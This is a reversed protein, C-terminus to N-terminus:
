EDLGNRLDPRVRFELPKHNLLEPYVPILPTNEKSFHIALRRAVSLNIPNYIDIDPHEVLLHLTELIRVKEFAVAAMMRITHNEHVLAQQLINIAQQSVLGKERHQLAIEKLAGIAGTCVIDDADQFAKPLIDVAKSTGLAQLIAITTLRGDRSKNDLSAALIAIAEEEGYKEMLESAIEQPKQKPRLLLQKSLEILQSDFKKLNMEAIRRVFNDEHHYAQDLASKADQSSLLRLTLVAQMKVMKDPHDFAQILVKMAKQNDIRGLFNIAALRLNEDHHNLTQALIEIAKINTTESLAFIALKAIIHNKHNCAQTLIQLAEENGIKGLTSIALRSVYESEHDIAQSLAQIAEHNGIQGLVVGATTQLHKSEDDLILQLVKIAKPTGIDGLRWIANERTNIDQSNLESRLFELYQNLAEISEPREIKHLAQLILGQIYPSNSNNLAQILLQTAERNAIRGLVNIAGMVMQRQNDYIHKKFYELFQRHVQLISAVTAGIFKLGSYSHWFAFINTVIQKISPNDQEECEAICKGALLLLTSFIDDKENTISKLLPIPDDLLGTFVAITEHWDFDWFHVKALEIGNQQRRLYSATLYEQFTRHLFLYRDRERELKQIIGDEETLESILIESNSQKFVSSVTDSHLYAEIKDYLDDATFIEKYECSFQYALEELLRLKARIRGETQPKRNRTWNKLMYEVAHKYIQVRRAPLTLEDEQYLSCVLSLLLPNQALGRIQPKQQLEHILGKASRM